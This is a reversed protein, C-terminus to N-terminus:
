ILYMWSASASGKFPVIRDCNQAYGMDALGHQSESLFQGRRHHVQLSPYMDIAKLGLM